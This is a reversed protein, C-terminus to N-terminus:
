RQHRPGGATILYELIYAVQLRRECFSHINSDVLYAEKPAEASGEASRLALKADALPGRGHDLVGLHVQLLISTSSGEASIDQGGSMSMNFMYAFQRAEKPALASRGAGGLGGSHSDLLIM